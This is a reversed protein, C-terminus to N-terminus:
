PKRGDKAAIFQQLTGRDAVAEGPLIVECCFEGELHAASGDAFEFRTCGLDGTRHHSKFWFKVREGDGLTVIGTQIGDPVVDWKMTPGSSGELDMKAPDHTAAAQDVDAKSNGRKMCGPLAFMAVVFVVRKMPVTRLGGPGGPCRFEMVLFAPWSRSGTM